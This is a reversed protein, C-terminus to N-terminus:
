GTIGTKSVINLISGQEKKIYPLCEKTMTYYHFLNNEYSKILDQTSTNEIHLNDNTGANNVLAYIGGHKIAVKKVLKEIQEY